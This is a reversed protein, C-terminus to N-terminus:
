YVTELYGKKIEEFNKLWFEKFWKSENYKGLDFGRKILEKKVVSGKHPHKYMRPHPSFFGHIYHVLEHAITLDIIWEPVKENRFLENIRILTAEDKTLRINGFNNRSKGKFMIRIENKKESDLFYRGWIQELRNMLWIKDRM